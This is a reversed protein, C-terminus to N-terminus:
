HISLFTAGCVKPQIEATPDNEDNTAYPVNTTVHFANLKDKPNTYKVDPAIVTRM